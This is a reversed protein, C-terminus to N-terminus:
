CFPSKLARRPVCVWVYEDCYQLSKSDQIYIHVMLQSVFPFCEIHM